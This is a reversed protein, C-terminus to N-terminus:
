EGKEIKNCVEELAENLSWGGNYFMVAFEINGDKDIDALVGDNDGLCRHEKLKYLKNNHVYYDGSCYMAYETWTSFDGTDTIGREDKFIHELYSEIDMHHFMEIEVLKGTHAEISSM